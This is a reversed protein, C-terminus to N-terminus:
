DFFRERVRQFRHAVPVMSFSNRIRDFEAEPVHKGRAIDCLQQYSRDHLFCMHRYRSEQRPKLKRM